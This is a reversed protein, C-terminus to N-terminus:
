KASRFYPYENYRYGELRNGVFFENSDESSSQIIKKEFTIQDAFTINALPSEADPFGSIGTNCVLMKYGCFLREFLITSYASVAIDVEHFSLATKKNKDALGYPIGNLKSNYYEKTWLIYEDKKERPHPFVTLQYDTNARIFDAVCRLAFEEAALIDLGHAAHGLRIRLWEGHSYFGITKSTPVLNQNRYQDIYSFSYEPLWLTVRKAKIEPLRSVEELHYQTCVLLEDAITTANHLKLPGPSPLKSITIGEARLCITLLNSDAEYPIFDYIHSIQQVKCYHVLAAIEAMEAIMLARNSRQKKLVMCRIIIPFSCIFWEVASLVIWPRLYRALVNKNIFLKPMTGAQKEVYQPEFAAHSFTADLIATNGSGTTRACEGGRLALRLSRVFVKLGIWRDDSASEDLRYSMNGSLTKWALGEESNAAAKSSRKMTKRIALIDPRRKRAM